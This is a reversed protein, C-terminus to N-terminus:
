KLLKVARDWEPGSQYEAFGSGWIVGTVFGREAMAMVARAIRIGGEGPRISIRGSGSRAVKALVRKQDRTLGNDKWRARAMESARASRQEPTERANRARAMEAAAQSVLNSMM